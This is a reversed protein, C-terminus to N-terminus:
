SAHSAIPDNGRGHAAQDTGRRPPLRPRRDHCSRRPAVPQANHGLINQSSACSATRNHRPSAPPSRDHTRGSHLTHSDSCLTLPAPQSRSASPWASVKERGHARRHGDRSRLNHVELTHIMTRGRVRGPAAHATLQRRCRQARTSRSCAGM